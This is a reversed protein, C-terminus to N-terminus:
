RKIQYLCSRQRNQLVTAMRSRGAISDDQLDLETVHQQSAAGGHGAARRSRAPRQRTPGSTLLTHDAEPTGQRPLAHEQRRLSPPSLFRLLSPVRTSRSAQACASCTEGEENEGWGWGWRWGWGVYM